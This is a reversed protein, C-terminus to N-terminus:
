YIRRNNIGRLRNTYASLTTQKEFLSNKGGPLMGTELTKSNYQRNRESVLRNYDM